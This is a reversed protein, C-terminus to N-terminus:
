DCHGGMIKQVSEFAKDIEEKTCVIKCNIDNAPWRHKIILVRMDIVTGYLFYNALRYLLSASRSRCKIIYVPVYKIRNHNGHIDIVDFSYCNAISM